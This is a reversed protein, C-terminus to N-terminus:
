SNKENQIYKLYEKKVNVKFVYLDRNYIQIEKRCIPEFYKFTTKCLEGSRELRLIMDQANRSALSTFKVQEMWYQIDKNRNFKYMNSNNKQAFEWLLHKNKTYDITPIIKSALDHDASDYSSLQSTLLELMEEDLVIKNASSHLVTEPDVVAADGTEIKHALNVALGTLMWEDYLSTSIDLSYYRIKDTIKETVIVSNNHNDIIEFHGNTCNAAEMNWLRGAMITQPINSGSEIRKTIDDHGIVLDAKEYDNTVTIKHEKLAAKLRDQSVSCKPLIFAKKKNIFTQGTETPVSLLRVIKEYTTEDQTVLVDEISSSTLVGYLPASDLGFHQLADADFDQYVSKSAM